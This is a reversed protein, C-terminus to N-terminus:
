ITEDTRSWGQKRAPILCAFRNDGRAQVWLSVTHSRPDPDQSEEDWAPSLPAIERSNSISPTHHPGPAGQGGEGRQTKEQSWPGPPLSATLCAQGM